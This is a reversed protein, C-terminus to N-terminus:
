LGAAQAPREAHTDPRGHQDPEHLFTAGRLRLDPNEHWGRKSRQRLARPSVGHWRRMQRFLSSRAAYGVEAAVEETSMRTSAFLRAAVAVRKRQLYAHPTLGHIDTFLRLFHFKSLCAASALMDLDLQEDYHTHIYDTALCIRRYIEARTSSKLAATSRVARIVHRHHMLMRELLFHLQEDYWGEEDLGHELHHRIYGLVPTVLRDHPQLSEVFEVSQSTQWDSRDLIRDGPAVLAGLVEEPLGKRFFISYSEVDRKSDVASGYKRGDNLILFNDDDVTVSRHDIFYTERGGRAAKISLRQTFPPMDVRRCKAFVICSERLWRGYFARRYPENAPLPRLRAPDPMQRIIFM